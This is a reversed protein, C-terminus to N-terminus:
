FCLTRENVDCCFMISSSLVEFGALIASCIPLSRYLVKTSSLYMICTSRHIVVYLFVIQKQDTLFLRITEDLDFCSSTPVLDPWCNYPLNSMAQWDLFPLRLLNKAWSFWRWGIEIGSYPSNPYCLVFNSKNAQKYATTSGGSSGGFASTLSTSPAANTLIFRGHCELVFQINHHQIDFEVYSM